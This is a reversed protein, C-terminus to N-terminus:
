RKVEQLTFGPQGNNMVVRRNVIKRGFSDTTPVSGPPLTNLAVFVVGPRSIFPIRRGDPYVSIGGGKKFTVRCGMETFYHASLIPCGVKANQFTMGFETGADNRHVADFGGLNPIADGSASTYNLRRRQGGRERM